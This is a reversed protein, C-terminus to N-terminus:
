REYLCAHELKAKRLIAAKTCPYDKERPDIHDQFGESPREQVEQIKKYGPTSRPLDKVDEPSRERYIAMYGTPGVDTYFGNLYKRAPMGGTFLQAIRVYWKRYNSGIHYDTLHQALDTMFMFEGPKLKYLHRAITRSAVSKRRM